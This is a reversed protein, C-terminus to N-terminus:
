QSATTFNDEGSRCRRKGCVDSRDLTDHTVDDNYGSDQDFHFQKNERSVKSSSDIVTPCSLKVTASTDLPTVSVIDLEQCEALRLTFLVLVLWTMNCFTRNNQKLNRTSKLITARRNVSRDMAVLHLCM